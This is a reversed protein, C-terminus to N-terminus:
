AGSAGCHRLSHCPGASGRRLSGPEISHSELLSDGCLSPGAAISGFSQPGARRLWSYELVPTEARALFRAAVASVAATRAETIYRGDMVALMAGTHPDLLLITAEHSHLGISPNRGFVTVLKAGLAPISAAHSPMVAFFSQGQEVEIVSRVPQNVKGSSFDALATQMAAILDPMSLAAHVEAENLWLPM